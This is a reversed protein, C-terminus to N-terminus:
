SVDAVNEWHNNNEDKSFFSNVDSDLDETLSQTYNDKVNNESAEKPIVGIEAKNEEKERHYTVFLFNSAKELVILSNQQAKSPWKICSYFPWTTWTREFHLLLLIPPSSPFNSSSKGGSSLSIQYFHKDENPTKPYQMLM